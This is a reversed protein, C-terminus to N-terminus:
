ATAAGIERPQRIAALTEGIELATVERRRAGTARTAERAIDSLSIVGLIQDAADLVPLRHVHARQMTREAEHLDDGARCSCVQTCMVDGVCIQTLPLGKTYAAMCLDRDTVIGVVRPNAADEIVPVVGCDREWMVRAVENLTDSPVCTSVGKTMVQEVKM